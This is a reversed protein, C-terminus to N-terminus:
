NKRRSFEKEEGELKFTQEFRTWVEKTEFEYSSLLRLIFNDLDNHGSSKELKMQDVFGNKDVFFQVVLRGEMGARRAFDPYYLVPNGPKQRLLAFDMEKKSSDIKSSDISNSTNPNQTERNLAETEFNDKSDQSKKRGFGVRERLKHLKIRERFSKEKETTEFDEKPITIELGTEMAEEILELEEKQAEDKKEIEGDSNIEQGEGIEGEPSLGEPFPEQELPRLAEADIESDSLSELDSAEQILSEQQKKLEGQEEARQSTETELSEQTKISAKKSVESNKPDLAQPTDELQTDSDKLQRRKERKFFRKKSRSAKPRIERKSDAPDKLDKTTEELEELSEESEEKEVLHPGLQIPKYYFFLLLAGLVHILISAVIFSKLSM